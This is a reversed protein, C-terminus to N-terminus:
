LTPPSQVRFPPTLGQIRRRVKKKPKADRQPSKHPEPEPAKAGGRGLGPRRRGLRKGLASTDFAGNRSGCMADRTEHTGSATQTAAGTSRTHQLQPQRSCRERTMFADGPVCIMM